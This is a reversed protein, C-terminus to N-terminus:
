KSSSEAKDVSVRACRWLHQMGMEAIFKGEIKQDWKLVKEFVGKKHQIDTQLDSCSKCFPNVSLLVFNDEDNNIKASWAQAAASYYGIAAELYTNFTRNDAKKSRIFEDVKIKANQVRVSYDAFTVGADLVSQIARLERLASSGDPTSSERGDCGVGTISVVMSVSVLILLVMKKLAIGEKKRILFGLEGPPSFDKQV